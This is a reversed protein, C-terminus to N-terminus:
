PGRRSEKTRFDIEEVRIKEAQVMNAIVRAQKMQLLVGAVFLIFGGGVGIGLCAWGTWPGLTYVAIENVYIMNATSNAIPVIQHFVQTYGVLPAMMADALGLGFVLIGCAMVNIWPAPDRGIFVLAFYVTIVIFALLMAWLWEPFVVDQSSLPFNTNVEWLDNGQSYNYNGTVNSPPSFPLDQSVVRAQALPVVTLFCLLVLLILAFKRM